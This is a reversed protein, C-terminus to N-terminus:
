EKRRTFDDQVEKHVSVVGACNRKAGPTKCHQAINGCVGKTFSLFKGAGYAADCALGRKTVKRIFKLRVEKLMSFTERGIQKVKVKKNARGPELIIDAVRSARQNFSKEM